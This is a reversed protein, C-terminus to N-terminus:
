GEYTVVPTLLPPPTRMEELDRGAKERHKDRYMAADARALLDDVTQADAPYAALGFALRVPVRRGANAADLARRLRGALHQAGESGVDPFLLTFEDGGTRCCIDHARVGGRLFEAVWVLARDGTAHGYRDNLRKFDNVDVVMVSFTRGPNRSARGLEEALREELYRRNWLGTLPDRYALTRFVELKALERRLSANERALAALTRPRPSKGTKPRKM